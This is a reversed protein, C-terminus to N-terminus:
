IWLKLFIVYYFKYIFLYISNAFITTFITVRIHFSYMMHWKKKTSEMWNKLNWSVVQLLWSLYSLQFPRQIRIDELVQLDNRIIAFVVRSPWLNPSDVQLLGALMERQLCFRRGIFTATCVPLPDCLVISGVLWSSKWTFCSSKRFSIRLTCCHSKWM